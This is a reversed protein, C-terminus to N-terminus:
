LSLLNQTEYIRNIIIIPPINTSNICIVLSAYFSINEGDFLIRRSTPRALSKDAGRYTDGGVHKSWPWWWSTWVTLSANHLKTLVHQLLCYFITESRQETIKCPMSHYNTVSMKPWGILGMKLPWATWSSHWSCKAVSHLIGSCMVNVGHCFGSTLVIFYPRWGYISTHLSSQYHYFAYKPVQNIQKLTFDNM